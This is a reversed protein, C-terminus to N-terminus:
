EAQDFEDARLAADELSALWNWSRHAYNTAFKYGKLELLDEFQDLVEKQTHESIWKAIAGDCEELRRVRLPNTALTPDDAMDPVEARAAAFAAGLASDSSITAL